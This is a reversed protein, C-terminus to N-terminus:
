AATALISEVQSWMAEIKQRLQHNREALCERLKTRTTEDGIEELWRQLRAHDGVAIAAEPQGFEEMLQPYKHSWGVALAPVDQSLAGVLAHFRSSIVGRATGLIGKLRLPCTEEVVEVPLDCARQLPEVLARDEPTHILVAVNFGAKALSHIAEALFPIYARAISPET